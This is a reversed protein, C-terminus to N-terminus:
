REAGAAKQRVDFLAFLILGLALAGGVLAIGWQAGLLMAFGILVPAVTEGVKAVVEFYGVVRDTGLTSTVPLALLHENQAAAATGEAVAMLGITLILGFLNGWLVFPVLALVWLLLHRHGRREGWVPESCVPQPDAGSIVIILGNLLFVRGM